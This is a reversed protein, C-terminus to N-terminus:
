TATEGDLQAQDAQEEASNPAKGRLGLYCYFCLQLTGAEDQYLENVIVGERLDAGGITAERIFHTARRSSSAPGPRRV